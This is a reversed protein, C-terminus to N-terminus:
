KLLEKLRKWAEQRARANEPSADPAQGARMFGHGAEAYIVPEYYKGAAKMRAKTEALTQNIRADNEAYFGYVPCAIGSVDEPGSGYFVFAKAIEKHNTAFRFTQTGGWCFGAVHIKGNSAPLKAAYHCVAKLDSTIQEPPLAAIAKRAADDGGLEATGGKESSLLDPAVAVYGAEALQDCFSRVWDTLGFIEHIVVVTQAKGKVEPYAVFCKVVRDGAKVEVWELHRPSKELEQRAWEQASAPAFLCLLILLNRLM